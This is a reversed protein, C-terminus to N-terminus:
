FPTESLDEAQTVSYDKIPNNALIEAPIKDKQELEPAVVSALRRLLEDFTIVEIKKNAFRFNNFSDKQSQDLSSINGIILVGRPYVNRLNIFTEGLVSQFHRIAVEIQNQTQVIAGTLKESMSYVENENGSGPEGRYIGGVLETKPTKIEIVSFSKSSEDAMLYDTEVGGQGKGLAKKGGLYTEGSIYMMPAGFAQQLIWSEREFFTQWWSEDTPYSKLGERFEEIVNKRDLHIKGASLRTALDPDESILENWFDETYGKSILQAIAQMKSTKDIIIVETSKGVTYEADISLGSNKIKSLIKIEDFLKNIAQTSLNVRVGCNEPVKRFDVENVTVYNGDKGIKQRVLEGNVGGPHIGPIFLLRTTKDKDDIIVPDAISYGDKKYKTKIKEVM